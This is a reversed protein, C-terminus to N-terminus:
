VLRMIKSHLAHAFEGTYDGTRSMESELAMLILETNLVHLGACKEGDMEKFNTKM